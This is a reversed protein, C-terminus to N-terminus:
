NVALFLLFCVKFLIRLSCLCVLTLIFLSIVIKLDPMGMTSLNTNEPIAADIIETILEEEVELLRSSSAMYTQLQLVSCLKLANNYYHM